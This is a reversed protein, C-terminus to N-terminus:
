VSKLKRAYVFDAFGLVYWFVGASLTGRALHFIILLPFFIIKWKDKLAGARIIKFGCSLLLNSIEKVDYLRVHTPDDSFNLTGRMSPFNLSRVAPYEIYIIGNHKLKPTLLSIVELGNPLHEIVHTLLIVDYYNEPIVDLSECSLDIKYFKEMLLYDKNTNNYNDCDVGYYTCKTFLEKTISASRNGCGVDLLTFTKDNFEKYLFKFKPAMRKFM